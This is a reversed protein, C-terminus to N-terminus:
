AVALGAYGVVMERDGSIDGSTAYKILEVSKAGLRKAAILMAVTPGYGCMSINKMTVVEHLGRPDLALIREIAQSDKQRTISDSEYHNMDSSAIVLVREKQLAITEGIARGLMELAEFRGTGVAIPVFSFQGLRAQLFPLQVEAAHESHHAQSDESLIPCRTKLDTALNSDIPVNGLPTEWEGASMISLPTGRGTHNPCMVICRKPLELRAYVAGAVHGSYIYGAHPVICGLAAIPKGEAKDYSQIEARLQHPDRPYFQGAVAPHRVMTTAM